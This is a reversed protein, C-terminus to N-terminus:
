LVWKAFNHFFNYLSPAKLTEHSWGLWLFNLSAWEQFNERGINVQKVIIRYTSFINLLNISIKVIIIIFSPVLTFYYIPYLSGDHHIRWLRPTM